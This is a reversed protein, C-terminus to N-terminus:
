ISPEDGESDKEDPYAAVEFELDLDLESIKKLQATTFTFWGGDKIWWTCRFSIDLGPITKLQDLRPKASSLKEIMWDMHETLLKSKLVQDSILSWCNNKNIRVRGLTNPGSIKGKKIIETPTIGLIETVKEPDLEGPYILLKVRCELADASNVSEDM